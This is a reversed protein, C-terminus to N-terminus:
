FWTHSISIGSSLSDAEPSEPLNVRAVSIEDSSSPLSLAMEPYSSMNHFILDTVDGNEVAYRGDEQPRLPHRIQLLQHGVGAAREEDKEQEAPKLRDAKMM